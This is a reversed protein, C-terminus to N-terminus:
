FPLQRGYLCEVFRSYFNGKVRRSRMAAGLDGQLICSFPLCSHENTARKEAKRPVLQDLQGEKNIHNGWTEGSPIVPMPSISLSGVIKAGIRIQDHNAAESSSRNLLAVNLM